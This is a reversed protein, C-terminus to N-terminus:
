LDDLEQLWRPRLDPVHEVVNIKLSAVLGTSRTFNDHPLQTDVIVLCYFLLPSVIDILQAVPVVTFQDIEWFSKAVVKDNLVVRCLGLIVV